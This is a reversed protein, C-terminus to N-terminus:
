SFRAAIREFSSLFTYVLATLLWTICLVSHARRNSTIFGIVCVLLFCTIVYPYQEPVARLHWSGKQLTEPIDMLFVTTQIGFFWRRNAYFYSEFNIGPGFEAPFLMYAGMFIAVAFGYIFLFWEYSWTELGRWWYMGWWSGSIFIACNIAWIIHVWYIHIERRLQIVRGLGRLLHTLALGFIISILIAFYDFM